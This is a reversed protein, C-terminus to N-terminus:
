ADTKSWLKTAFGFRMAGNRILDGILEKEPEAKNDQCTGVCRRTVGCLTLTGELILRNGRHVINMTGDDRCVWDLQWTPDAQILMLTVDAHGVYDLTTNGKPIQSVLEAPPTAFKAPIRTLRQVDIEPQDATDTGSDPEPEDAPLTSPDATM